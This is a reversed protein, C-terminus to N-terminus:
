AMCSACSSPTPAGRLSIRRILISPSSSVEVVGAAVRAPSSATAHGQRRADREVADIMSWVHRRGVPGLGRSAEALRHLPAHDDVTVQLGAEAPCPQGWRDVGLVVVGGPPLKARHRERPEAVAVALGGGAGVVVELDLRDREADCTVEAHHNACVRQDDWGFHGLRHHAADLGFQVQRALLHVEAGRVGM